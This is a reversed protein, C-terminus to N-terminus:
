KFSVSDFERMLHRAHVNGLLLHVDKPVTLRGTKVHKYHQPRHM